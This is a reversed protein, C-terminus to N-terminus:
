QFVTLIIATSTLHRATAGKIELTGIINMDNVYVAVIAFESNCRHSAESKLYAATEKIEDLTGIINMDNVYVAVIVFGSSTKKIFVCMCLENNKYRERILYDSLRTYWM